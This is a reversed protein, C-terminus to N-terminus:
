SRPYGEQGVKSGTRFLVVPNGENDAIFDDGLYDWLKGVYEESFVRDPYFRRNDLLAQTDQADWEPIQRQAHETDYYKNTSAVKREKVPAPSMDNVEDYWQVLRDGPQSQVPAGQRVFEVDALDDYDLANAYKLAEDAETKTLTTSEGVLSPQPPALLSGPDPADDVVVRAGGGKPPRPAEKPGYQRLMAGVDLDAVEKILSSSAM